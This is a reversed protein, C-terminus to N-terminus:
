VYTEKVYTEQVYTEKECVIQLSFSAINVEYGQLKKQRGTNGRCAAAAPSPVEPHDGRAFVRFHCGSAGNHGVSQVHEQPQGDQSCHRTHRIRLVQICAGTGHTLEVGNKPLGALSMNTYVTSVHTHKVKTQPEITNGTVRM